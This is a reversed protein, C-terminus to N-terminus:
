GDGIARIPYNYGALAMRTLVAREGDDASYATAAIDERPRGGRRCDRQDRSLPSGLVLTMRALPVWPDM